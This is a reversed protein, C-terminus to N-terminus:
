IFARRCLHRPFINGYKHIMYKSYEPLKRGTHRVLERVKEVIADQAGPAFWGTTTYLGRTEYGGESLVRVSPLYGFVDNCYAAIWLQLPGIGRELLHVYDVVVEGSLAVFTLDTGFQWVALPARYDTALKEGRELVALM